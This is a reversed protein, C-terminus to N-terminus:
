EPVELHIISEIAGLTQGLEQIATRLVTDVDTAAWIRGTLHSLTRDREANRQTEELLRINELALVAQNTVAEIVAKENQTWEDDAELTLYGITQERLVLPIDMTSFGNESNQDDGDKGTSEPNVFTYSLMEPHVAVDKWSQVVYQSHLNRIEDLNAQTQQFLTANDLAIGLSDAISQLIIIDDQDFAEPESSQVSLAGLVHHGSVMPLALESRTHPLLPNDFHIADQGVDLAIRSQGRSTAWGIMSSGGISLRHGAAIMEQGAAGTGARLEAYQRTQDLVFLGVYYLEFREKILEVARQFLIDPDLESSIARSIEAATRLQVQRRSLDLTQQRYHDIDQELNEIVSYNRQLSYELGTLLIVTSIGIIIAIITTDISINTWALINKTHTIESTIPIPIIQNAFLYGIVLLALGSSIAALLGVIPGLFLMALAAYGIFWIGSDSVIGHQISAVIGITFLIACLSGIRFIFPLRRFIAIGIVWLLALTYLIIPIWNRSQAYPILYNIYVLVGFVATGALVLNLTKERWYQTEDKLRIAPVTLFQQLRRNM